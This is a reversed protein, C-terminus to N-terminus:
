EFYCTLRQCVLRNKSASSFVICQPDCLRVYVQVLRHFALFICVKIKSPTTQALCFLCASCCTDDNRKLRSAEITLNLNWISTLETMPRAAELVFASSMNWVFEASASQHAYLSLNSNSDLSHRFQRLALEISPAVTKCGDLRRCFSLLSMRMIGYVPVSLPIQAFVQRSIWQPSWNDIHFFCFRDLSM